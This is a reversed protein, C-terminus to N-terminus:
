NAQYANWSQAAAAATSKTGADAMHELNFKLSSLNKTKM